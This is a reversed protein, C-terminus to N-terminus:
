TNEYRSVAKEVKKLLDKEDSFTIIPIKQTMELDEMTIKDVSDDEGKMVKIERIEEQQWEPILVYEDYGCKCSAKYITKTVRVLINASEKCDHIVPVFNDSIDYGNKLEGRREMEYLKDSKLQIFKTGGCYWCIDKPRQEQLKKIEELLKNREEESLDERYVFGKSFLSKTDYLQHFKDVVLSDIKSAGERDENYFKTSNCSACLFPISSHMRLIDCFPCYAAVPCLGPLPSYPRLEEECKPCNNIFKRLYAQNLDAMNM